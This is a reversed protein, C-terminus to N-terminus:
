AIATEYIERMAVASAPWAFREVARARVANARESATQPADLITSLAACWADPDDVGAVPALGGAVEPLSSADSVVVPAGACLAQAAAYGFGEYHSPVAVVDAEAYAALLAQRSVYGRFEVRDAVGLDRALRLCSTRYATFPGASVLRAGPMGRLAHLLVEFNKRREVTGPVFITRNGLPRRDLRAFAGDVGPYVVRVREPPVGIVDLLEARSFASDVVIYRAKSYQALALTGFYWRAYARAHAQVRLWAVDHVTVVCPISRWLPMTGSACHLLDAGSRRARVPLIAQDWLVRRDFRWPDIRPEALECVDTGIDRLAAALGRAYEGIGTATGVALHADIAVKM